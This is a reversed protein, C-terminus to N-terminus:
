GWGGGGAGVNAAAGGAFGGGMDIDDAARDQRPKTCLNGGDVGVVAVRDLDRGTAGGFLDGFFVPDNKERATALKVLQLGNFTAVKGIVLAASAASVRNAGGARAVTAPDIM